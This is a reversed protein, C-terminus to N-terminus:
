KYLRQVQSVKKTVGGILTCFRGVGQDSKNFMMFQRKTNVHSYSHLDTYYLNSIMKALLWQVREMAKSKSYLLKVFRVLFTKM